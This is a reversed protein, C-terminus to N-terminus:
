VEPFRSGPILVPGVPRQLPLLSHLDPRKKSVKRSLSKWLSHEELSWARMDCFEGRQLLYMFLKPQTARADPTTEDRDSIDSSRGCKGPGSGYIEHASKTRRDANGIM